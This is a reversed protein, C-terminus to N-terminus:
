VEKGNDIEQLNSGARAQEADQKAKQETTVIHDLVSNHKTTPLSDPLSVDPSITESRAVPPPEYCNDEPMELAADIRAASEIADQDPMTSAKNVDEVDESYIQTIRGSRKNAPNTWAIKLPITIGTINIKKSVQIAKHKVSITYMDKVNLITLWSYLITRVKQCISNSEASDLHNYSIVFGTGGSLLIDRVKPIDIGFRSLNREILEINTTIAM